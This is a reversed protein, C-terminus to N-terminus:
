DSPLERALQRVLDAAPKYSEIHELLAEHEKTSKQSLNVLAELIREQGQAQKGGVVDISDCLVDLVASVKDIAKISSESLKQHSAISQEALRETFQSQEDMRKFAWRLILFIVSVLASLATIDVLNLNEM